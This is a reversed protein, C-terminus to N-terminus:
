FDLAGALAAMCVVVVGSLSVEVDVAALDIKPPRVPALFAGAMVGFGSLPQNEDVM